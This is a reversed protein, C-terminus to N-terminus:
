RGAAARWRTSGPPAVTAGEGSTAAPLEYRDLVSRANRAADRLTQVRCADCAKAYRIFGRLAALDDPRSASWQHVDLVFVPEGLAVVKDLRRKWGDLMEGASRGGVYRADWDNPIVFPLVLVRQDAGQSQPAYHVDVLSKLPDYAASGDYEINWEMLRDRVEDTISNRPAGFGDVAFGLERLRTIGRDVADIQRDVGLADLQEHDYSHSGIEHGAAAARRIAATQREALKGVTIFTGHVGEAGFMRVLADVMRPNTAAYSPQYDPETDVRIVVSVHDPRAMRGERRHGDIARRLRQFERDAWYDFHFWSAQQAWDGIAELTLRTRRVGMDGDLVLSLKAEGETQREAADLSRRVWAPSQDWDDWYAMLTIEDLGARAMRRLDQGSHTNQQYNQSSFPLVFAGIYFDPRVEEVADRITNVTAVIKEARLQTWATWLSNQSEGARRIDIPRVRRGTRRQLEALAGPTVCSYDDDYRIFDLWLGRLQPFRSVVERAIRAEHRAVEPHFPCLWGEQTELRGDPAIRQSRWEPHLKAAQEDHLVPMWALPEIGKDDLGKVFAALRGDGYGPAVPALKSDYFMSGAPFEDTEDQKVQVWVRKVDQAAFRAVLPAVHEARDLHKPTRVVLSLGPDDGAQKSPAPIALAVVSLLAACAATAVLAGLLIRRGSANPASV